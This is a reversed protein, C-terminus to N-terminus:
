KKRFLDGLGPNPKPASLRAIASELYGPISGTYYVHVSTRGRLVATYALRKQVSGMKYLAECGAVHVARFELGKASHMTEARIQDTDFDSSSLALIAKFNELQDRKPFLVGILEEPYLDVQSKLRSIISSIQEDFNACIVPTVSSPLVTEDYRCEGHVPAFSVSDKLIGDAVKCINLGSRYHYKLTIVKNEVLSELLGPTHTTRYISQRSDAVLILRDCLRRLVLLETDMYDQSEDILLAEFPPSINKEDVLSKVRGALMARDTEFDNTLDLKVNYEDLIERFFQMGTIVHERPVGYKECGEQVFRKLSSTFVVIKFSHIDKLKFWLARLLLINTKGSGAPGRILFSDAEDMNLVASSQEEDLQSEGIWFTGHM